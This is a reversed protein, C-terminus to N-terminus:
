CHESSDGKCMEESKALVSSGCPTDIEIIQSNSQDVKNGHLDCKDVEISPNRLLDTSEHNPVSIADIREYTVESVHIVKDVMVVCTGETSGITQNSLVSLQQDKSVESQSPIASFIFILLYSESHM